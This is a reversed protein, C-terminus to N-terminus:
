YAEIDAKVDLKELEYRRKKYGAADQEYREIDNLLQQERRNKEALQKEIFLREFKM